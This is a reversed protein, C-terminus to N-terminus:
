SHKKWGRKAALLALVDGPPADGFFGFFGATLGACLRPPRPQPHLPPLPAVAELDDKRAPGM